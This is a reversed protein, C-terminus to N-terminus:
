LPRTLGHKEDEMASEILADFRGADVDQMLQDEFEDPFAHDLRAYLEIREQSTLQGIAREIQDLNSSEM